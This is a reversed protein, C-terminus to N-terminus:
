GFIFRAHASRRKRFSIVKDYQWLPLNVIFFFHNELNRLFKESFAKKKLFLTICYCVSEPRARVQGYLFFSPSQLIHFVDFCQIRLWQLVGQLLASAALALCGALRCTLCGARYSILCALIIFLLHMSM